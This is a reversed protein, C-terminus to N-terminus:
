ASAVEARAKLAENMQKFGAETSKGVWALLPTVLAGRFEERQVFRTGGKHAQLEFIHEGDFVRPLGLRGLWRFERAGDARLVTPKFTMARGDPPEIRVTLKAGPEAKGILSTIFPNWESFSAFDTLVDWVREPTAQIDISARLEKM